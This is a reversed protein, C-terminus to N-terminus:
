WFTLVDGDKLAVQPDVISFSPQGGRRCIIATTLNFVGGPPDFVPRFGPYREEMVNLLHDANAPESLPISERVRGTMVAIRGVYKVFVHIPAAELSNM